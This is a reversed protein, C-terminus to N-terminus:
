AQLVLVVPVRRCFIGEMVTFYCSFCMTVRFFVFLLLFTDGVTCFLRKNQLMDAYLPTLQIM